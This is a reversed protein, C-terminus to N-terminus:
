FFRVGVQAGLWMKLNTGNNYTHDTFVSSSFDTFLTPYDTYSTRTLYGNLTVGTYASFKKTLQFDVGVHLKNLLSLEHTFSGKNVHQATLDVNLQLWRSLRAATGLGYGFTWVNAGNTVKEPKFGALVINYFSRVGTRFAVNTYFVEDASVELKHYGSRVYSVVGIPMGGLSDAFNFVGIQTGRVRQGYNFLGSIQSGSIHHTSINTLGAFQSGTFDGFHINGGGAIQVGRSDGRALNSLGAVSVGDASSLNTNSLGALQVGRFSEFNVNAFGTLQVAKTEGGNVNAFGSAQVGYVNRGVLNGFGAIQLYSVDERDINVFFGLEIQRTGRSYGALMNISYDNVMNGSLTGNSGLFPLFSIQIDNYLNDTINVVNPEDAYPLSLEEEKNVSDKASTEAKVLLSDKGIPAISINIYQDGPATIVVVTDRYERKSVAITAAQDKKDLKMRFFGSQDTVVSTVYKKNYVSADPVRERTIADEVYGSIVIATTVTQPKVVKALIVHSKKEKLDVTGKFLDNLIERISKNSATFSMTRDDGLIAPNYSFSFGNEKGIRSLVSSMKEENVSISIKRDLIPTKSQGFLAAPGFFLILLLSAFVKQM